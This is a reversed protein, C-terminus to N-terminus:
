SLSTAFVPMVFFYVWPLRRFYRDSVWGPDEQAPRVLESIWNGGEDVEVSALSEDIAQLITTDTVASDSSDINVIPDHSDPFVALLLFAVFSIFLYLRLPAVYRARKGDLYHRTLLGPRRILIFLTQWVRSDFAFISLMTESVITRVPIHLTGSRQGCSACYDEVNPSGCNPCAASAPLGDGSDTLNRSDHQSDSM